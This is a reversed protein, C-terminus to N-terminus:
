FPGLEVAYALSVLALCVILVVGQLKWTWKFWKSYAIGSIGLSILLVPNTPYVVNSFGDGFCFATVVTQRTIGVLDALPVIIPMVLFAKASGSAIFFNLVLIIGFVLLACWVGGMKQVAMSAYYLVTDLIGGHEVILKISAAMLIMLVSPLMGLIGELFEKGMKGKYRSCKVAAISGITLPLMMFILANASIVPVFIGAAVIGVMLIMSVSFIRVGLSMKRGQYEGAGAFTKEAQSEGRQADKRKDLKVAYRCLFVALIGYMIAFSLLHFWLGSYVPLGSLRQAVALTFPNTVASSFGFGAALVSMGVGILEDWGLSVALAAAFPVLAVSEEYVGVFAGFLMFILTILLLLRYKKNRSKDVIAGMAFNMIGSRNLLSISGSILMLFLIIGIVTMGDASWLVEVPATFVRWFPMREANDAMEYSGATVVERGDEVTRQFSGQPLTQTLIGAFVMLVLLILVSTIFTRKSIKLSNDQM